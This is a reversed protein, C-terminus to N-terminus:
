PVDCVLEHWLQPRATEFAVENNRERDRTDSRSSSILWLRSRAGTLRTDDTETTTATYLAARERRGKSSLSSRDRAAIPRGKSTIRTLSPLRSPLQDSM